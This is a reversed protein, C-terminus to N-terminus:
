DKKKKKKQIELYIDYSAYLKGISPINFNTNMEEFEERTLGDKFKLDKTIDKIFNYPAEVIKRVVEEPLNHKDAIEKIKIKNARSLIM